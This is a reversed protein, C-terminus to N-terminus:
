AENCAVKAGEIFDDITCLSRNKAHIFAVHVVAQVALKKEDGIYIRQHFTAKYVAEDDELLQTEVGVETWPIEAGYDVELRVVVPVIDSSRSFGNKRLWDWRGHELYELARANNVHGVSDLDGPRVALPTDTNHYRTM